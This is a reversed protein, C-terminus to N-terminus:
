AREGKEKVTELYAICIARAWTDAKFWLKCQYNPDDMGCWIKIVAPKGNWNTLALGSQKLSPWLTAFALGDDTSWSPLSERSTSNPPLGCTHKDPYLHAYGTELEKPAACFTGCEDVYGPYDPRIDTWGNRSAVAENLEENTLEAYPKTPTM